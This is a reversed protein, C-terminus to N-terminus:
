GGRRVGRDANSPRGDQCNANQLLERATDQFFAGSTVAVKALDEVYADDGCQRRKLARWYFADGLEPHVSIAALLDFEGTGFLLEECIVEVVWDRCDLIFHQCRALHQQEFSALWDSDQIRWVAPHSDYVPNQHHWYTHVEDPVALVLQRRHFVVWGDEAVAGRPTEPGPYHGSDPFNLDQLWLWRHITRGIRPHDIPECKM